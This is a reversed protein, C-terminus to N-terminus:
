PYIGRLEVARALKRFAINYAAQRFTAGTENHERYVADFAKLIIRELERQNRSISWQIASMDQVWEFYSLILGGANALIDPVLTIGRENLIADAETTTPDNAGEVIARCQLKDANSKTIQNQVACPLLIDCPTQLLQENTIPEGCHYDTLSCNKMKYAIIDNIDLGDENYIGGKSDSIGIVKVGFQIATQAANIGVHGMGQIIIKQNRIEEAERRALDRLIYALGWGVAKDRGPTGGIEVPKGTVVSPMTKGLGKSYTDMIWAMERAGTNLDPSPIDQNPGIVNFIAQTYRRTLQERESISLTKPDVVVAGKAGGLPLGILATKMSMLMALAQVERLNSTLTYRIGGKGPGLVNSHLVRFGEFMRVTGNDMKVPFNVIVSRQPRSLFRFYNKNFGLTDCTIRLREVMDELLDM